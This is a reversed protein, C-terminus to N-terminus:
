FCIEFIDIFVQDSANLHSVPEKVVTINPCENELQEPLREEVDFMDLTKTVPLVNTVAKILSSATVMVTKSEPDM